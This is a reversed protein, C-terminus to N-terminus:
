GWVISEEVISVEEVNHALDDDEEVGNEYSFAQIQLIYTAGSAPTALWSGSDPNINFEESTASLTYSLFVIKGDQDLLRVVYGDANAAAHFTVSLSSNIDHFTHGSIEPVGLNGNKLLDILQVSEDRDSVVDFLYEGEAPPNTEFDGTGPTKEYTYVSNPAPVLDFSGGAGSPPTVAASSINQNAFVYFTTAYKTEGDFNKKVVYADAAVEFNGTLNDEECAQFFFPVAFVLMLKKFLSKM